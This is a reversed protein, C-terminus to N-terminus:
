LQILMLVLTTWALNMITYENNNSENKEESKLFSLRKPPGEVTSARLMPVQPGWIHM